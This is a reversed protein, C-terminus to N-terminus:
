GRYGGLRQTTIASTPERQFRVTSDGRERLHRITEVFGAQGIGRRPAEADRETWITWVPSNSTASEM